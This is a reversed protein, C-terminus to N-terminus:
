VETDQVKTCLNSGLGYNPYRRLAHYINESVRKQRCELQFPSNYFFCVTNFVNEGVSSSSKRVSFDKPEPCSFLVLSFLQNFYLLFAATLMAVFSRNNRVVIDWM